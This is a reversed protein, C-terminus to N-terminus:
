RVSAYGGPVGKPSLVIQWVQNKRSRFSGASSLLYFTWMRRFREGYRDRLTDWSRVFNRYWCMLTRDYDAGFNHWDEMVFHGELAATVQKASPLMSNPFIYRETWANARKVSRNGGITHLLFLGGDRLSERVVEMYTRYNKYGVHEFMGLSLVADFTEDLNRYDQLRVDVPLGSCLERAFAAQEGSVTIAVVEAGCREAAYKATGGWGCGIDLVRMGPKLGIKGCVLELKAEQAEELTSANKWYGCSYLLRSDLMGEFLDNGLDYHREGIQLARSPRQLNVFKGKAVWWVDSLPRIKRELDAGLVRHFFEDLRECDWWGDMYSEGLGLVGEALVRAFLDENHVQLDWSRGGDIRVDALDLLQQIKDRFRTRSPKPRTTPHRATETAAAM